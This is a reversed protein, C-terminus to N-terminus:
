RGGWAVGMGFSASFGSPNPAVGNVAPFDGVLHYDGELRLMVHRSFFWNMGGGFRAGMQSVSSATAARYGSDDAQHHFYPGTAMSLFPRMSSSLALAAPTYVLGFLLPTTVEAHDRGIESSADADLASASFEVALQPRVYHTFAFSALQGSARATSKSAVSSAQREGTLGVGFSLFHRGVLNLSDPVQATVSGALTLTATTFLSMLKM